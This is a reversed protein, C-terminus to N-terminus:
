GFDANQGTRWKRAPLGRYYRPIKVTCRREGTLRANIGVQTLIGNEILFRSLQLAFRLTPLKRLHRM